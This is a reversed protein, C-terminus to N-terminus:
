SFNEKVMASFKSNSSKANKITKKAEEIEESSLSDGSDKLSIKHITKLLM